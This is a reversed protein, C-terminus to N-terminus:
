STPPLATVKPSDGVASETSMNAERRELVYKSFVLCMQDAVQKISFEQIIKARGNAGYQRRRKGDAAAAMAETLAGEDGTPILWGCHGHDVLEGIGGVNTAIVALGKAMAEMLVVPVGEMFSSVVMVDAGDFYRAIDDQGVPGTFEVYDAIGLEGALVELQNRMPGDGIMTLRWRINRDSLARCSRLLVHYGKIAVMRGVALLRLKECASSKSAGHADPDVGCHIVHCRPWIEPDTWTMIQARCFNSVCRVFCAREAKLKLRVQGVNFFEASGHVTMSYSLTRDYETALLAVMAGNNAMHVHVHCLDSRAMARALGIAEGAYAIHKIRQVLGPPSYRQANWFTGIFRLPHRLAGVLVHRFLRTRDDLLYTTQEAALRHHASMVGVAGPRGISFAQINVGIARLFRIEREIFTHSLAPYETNLYAIRV